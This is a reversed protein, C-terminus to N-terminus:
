CFNTLREAGSDSPASSSWKKMFGLDFVDLGAFLL